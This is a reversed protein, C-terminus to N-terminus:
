IIDEMSCDEGVIFDVIGYQKAEKPYMYWEIRQKENYTEEDINTRSLIYSKTHEEMQESEFKLRDQLKMTSNSAYSDGDHQLFTSHEMTFRKHGAIFILFGMSYCIGVNVTYVPTKSQLITDILSFGDTVIGGPSNIYLIIPKRDKPDIGNDLKNYRLIHYATTEIVCEDIDRNLYLHRFEIDEQIFKDELSYNYVYQIDDNM